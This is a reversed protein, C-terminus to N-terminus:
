SNLKTIKKETLQYRIRLYTSVVLLIAYAEVLLKEGDLWDV